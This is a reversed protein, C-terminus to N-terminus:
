QGGTFRLFFELQSGGKMGMPNDILLIDYRNGDLVMRSNEAKIEPNLTVHDAVFLHTSEQIKANFTTYRSDGSQLDLWGRITQVDNWVKVLEGIENKDTGTNTQIIATINGGIGRM